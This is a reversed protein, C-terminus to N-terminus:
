VFRINKSGPSFYMYKGRTPSILSPVSSDFVFVGNPNVSDLAFSGSPYMVFQAQTQLTQYGPTFGLFSGGTYLVRYLSSNNTFTDYLERYNGDHLESEFCQNCSNALDGYKTQCSSLSIETDLTAFASNFSIVIFSLILFIIRTIM